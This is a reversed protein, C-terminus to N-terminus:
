VQLQLMNGVELLMGKVAGGALIVNGARVLWDTGISFIHGEITLQPGLSQVKQAGSAQRVPVWRAKLQSLLQELAIPPTLTLFTTRYHSPSQLYTEEQGPPAVALVDSRIRAAPDELLVFVNEDMTVVCMTRESM